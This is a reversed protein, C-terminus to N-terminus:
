ISFGVCYFKEKWAEKKVVFLDKSKSNFKKKKEAKIKEHKLLIKHM